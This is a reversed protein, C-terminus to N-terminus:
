QPQNNKMFKVASEMASDVLAGALDEVDAAGVKDAGRISIKAKASPMAKISKGPWTSVSMSVNGELMKGAADPAMSVLSTDLSWGKAGKEKPADLTLGSAKKVAAALAKEMAKIAGAKFKDDFIRAVAPKALQVYTQEAPM